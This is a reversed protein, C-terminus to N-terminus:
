DSPGRSDSWLRNAIQQLRAESDPYGRLSLSFEPKPGMVRAGREVFGALKNLLEPTMGALSEPLVLLQYRNGEPLRFEGNEV